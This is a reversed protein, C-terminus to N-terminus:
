LLSLLFCAIYRCIHTRRPVFHIFHICLAASIDRKDVNEINIIMRTILYLLILHAPCTARVPSLLPAYLNATPLDSPLLVRPLGLFLHSSLILISRWSISHVPMSIISRSGLLPLHHLRTLLISDGEVLKVYPHRHLYPHLPSTPPLFGVSGLLHLHSTPLLPPWTHTVAWLNTVGTQSHNDHPPQIIM